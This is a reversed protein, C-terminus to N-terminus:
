FGWRGPSNQGAASILKDYAETYHRYMEEPKPPNDLWVISCANCRVLTYKEQRGHLRDPAKLWVAARNQGCLPCPGPGQSGATSTVEEAVSALTTRNDM